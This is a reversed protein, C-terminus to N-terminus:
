IKIMIPLRTPFTRTIVATMRDGFKLFTLFFHNREFRFFCQTFLLIFFGISLMYSIFLLYRFERVFLDIRYEAHFIVCLIMKHQSLRLDQFCKAHGDIIKQYYSSSSTTNNKDASRSILRCIFTVCVFLTEAM